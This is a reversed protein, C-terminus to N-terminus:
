RTVQDSVKLKGALYTIPDSTQMDWYTSSPLADLDEGSWALVIVGTAGGSADVTFNMLVPYDAVNAASTRAARVQASWGTTPLVLPVKNGDVDLVDNGDADKETLTLTASRSDGRILFLNLEGPEVHLDTM